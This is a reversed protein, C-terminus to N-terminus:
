LPDSDLRIAPDVPESADVALTGIAKRIALRAILHSYIANYYQGMAETLASRADLVEIQTNKGVKHGNELMRLAERSLDINKAQSQYLEEANRLDLLAQHIEVRAAEEANRLNAEAQRRVSKAQMLRGKRELGDFLTYTVQLGASWDDSWEDLSPDNPDPNQYKGNLFADASPGYSGKVARLKEDAMRLAAEAQLLDPRNVLATQLLTALDFKEPMYALSGVLTVDSEQNVGMTQLLRIVKSRLANREKILAARTSAVEVEARLVEYDSASGANRKKQATELMREAVAASETYVNVMQQALLVGLFEETAQVVTDQVQRRIAEDTSASYLEAYRIGASVAGSRWLPQTISWTVGYTDPNDGRERLDSTVGGTLGAHPYAAAKAETIAGAAEERKLFAARLPLNQSLAYNIADLLRIEGSIKPLTSAPATAPAEGVPAPPGYADLRLEHLTKDSDSACGAALAAAAIAALRSAKM